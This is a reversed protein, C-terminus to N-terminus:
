FRQGFRFGITRPRNTFITNDILSPFGPYNRVIEARTDTVNDAFITFTMDDKSVGVSLNLITYAAQNQRIGVDLDNWTQGTHSISAQGFAPIGAIEDEYRAVATFQLSPVYPMKTGIPALVSGGVSRSYPSTLKADNYSGSFSLTLQDTASLVLDFETGYTRSGGVNQIITLPSVAFDLFSIQVDKWEMYYVAGNFRLRNDLWTTKWGFEYNYVKDPQYGPVNPVRARNVGGPRFGQSYTLYVLKDDDITYTLNAKYIQGTDKQEDDLIKTDFCPYQPEGGDAAAIQVFSGNIYQGTCHALFGNFGYLSNRYKYYRMGGLATLKDTIDFSIETFAAYDRDERVQKTQWTTHGGEIVSQSSQMGPVIWQLDFDHKQKQFFVGAIARLREDQPTQIRFEHSQRKFYEDGTTFQTPDACTVGDANYYLCNYGYDAYLSSLYEAYGIYDDSSVVHRDLYAGAYIVDLGAVNGEVTLTAQYWNEDYKIPAFTTSNLDGIRDPDHAFSGTSVEEQYTIGPTVVWNENLDMKLLARGGTTKTDNYNNEVLSANTKTIGSAPFTISAPINDIYGGDKEHWGVLRIAANDAIPFNAFAEITGGAEGHAVINGAVDYGASFEGIVPQNTIIRMTGAESSAGFLTGQPGALTEIRAIDYMHLDLIQNITTIPQEDLYIGVSPMSGSHVGDGGSSIGRMYIQSTGPRSSQFSVTPLFYVYDDFGNINLDEMQKNGLVNLSLSVDQLDSTRKQATVYIVDETKDADQSYAPQSIIAGSMLITSALLATKKYSFNHGM